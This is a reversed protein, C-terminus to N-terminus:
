IIKFETFAALYLVTTNNPLHRLGYYYTPVMVALSFSGAYLSAVIHSSKRYGYKFISPITWVAAAASARQGIFTIAGILGLQLAISEKNSYLGFPVSLPYSDLHRLQKIIELPLPSEKLKKNEMKLLHAVYAMKNLGVMRDNIGRNHEILSIFIPLLPVFDKLIKPNKRSIEIILDCLVQTIGIEAPTMSYFFNAKQFQKQKAYCFDELLIQFLISKLGIYLPDRNLAHFFQCHVTLSTEKQKQQHSLAGYRELFQGLNITVVAMVCTSLRQILNFNYNTAVIRNCHEVSWALDKIMRTNAQRFDFGYNEIHDATTYRIYYDRIYRKFNKDYVWTSISGGNYKISYLLSITAISLCAIQDKKTLDLFGQVLRSEILRSFDISSIIHNM